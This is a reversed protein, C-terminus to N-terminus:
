GRGGVQPWWLWALLLSSSTLKGSSSETGSHQPESWAIGCRALLPHVPGLKRAEGSQKPWPSRPGTMPSSGATSSGKWGRSSKEGPLCGPGTFCLEPLGTITLSRNSVEGWLQQFTPGMPAMTASALAGGNELESAAHNSLSKAETLASHLPRSCLASACSLRPKHPLTQVPLPLFHFSGASANRAGGGKGEVAGGGAGGRSLNM